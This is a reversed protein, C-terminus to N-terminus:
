TLREIIKSKFAGHFKPLGGELILIQNSIIQYYKSTSFLVRLVFAESPIGKLGGVTGVAGQYVPVGVGPHETFPADAHLWWLEGNWWWRWGDRAFYAFDLTRLYKFPQWMSDRYGPGLLGHLRTGRASPIRGTVKRIMSNLIMNSFTDLTLVLVFRVWIKFLKPSAPLLTNQSNRIDNWM